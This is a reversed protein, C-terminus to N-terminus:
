AYLDLAKNYEENTGLQKIIAFAFEKAVGPGKATIINKDIVVGSNSIVAGMLESEYGPYCTAERGNLMGLGGLISPAACISAITKNKHYYDLVNKLKEFKALNETGPQGGPLILVDANLPDIESFLSDSIINVGHSGIVNLNDSISITVVDIGVARLITVPYMVEMEEFGNALIIYAKM